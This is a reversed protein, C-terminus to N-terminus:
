KLVDTRPLKWTKERKYSASIPPPSNCHGHCYLKGGNKVYARGSINGNGWWKTIKHKITTARARRVVKVPLTRVYTRNKKISATDLRVDLRSLFLQIGPSRQQQVITAGLFNANDIYAFCVTQWHEVVGGYGTPTSFTNDLLSFANSKYSRCKHIAQDFRWHRLFYFIKVGCKSYLTYFLRGIM